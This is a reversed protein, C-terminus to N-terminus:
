RKKSTNPAHRSPPAGDATSLLSGVRASVTHGHRQCRGREDRRARMSASQSSQSLASWTLAGKRAEAHREAVQELEAAARASAPGSSEVASARLVVGDGVEDVLVPRLSSGAWPLRPVWAVGAGREAFELVLSLNASRVWPRVKLTGADEGPWTWRVVPHKALAELSKPTGHTALYDPSAALQMPFRAIVHSFWEPRTLADGFHFMLDFPKGVRSRPDEVEILTM